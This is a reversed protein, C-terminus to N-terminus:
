IQKTIQLLSLKEVITNWSAHHAKAETRRGFVHCVNTREADSVDISIIARPQSPENVALRCNCLSKNGTRVYRIETPPVQTLDSM